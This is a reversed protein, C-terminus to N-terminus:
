ARCIRPKPPFKARRAAEWLHVKPVEALNRDALLKRISDFERIRRDEEEYDDRKFPGTYVYREFGGAQINGLGRVLLTQIGTPTSCEFILYSPNEGFDTSGRRRLTRRFPWREFTMWTSINLANVLTSKGANNRAVLHVPGALDLEAYIFRGSNIAILRRVGHRM